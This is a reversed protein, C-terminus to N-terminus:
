LLIQSCNEFFRKGSSDRLLPRFLKSNTGQRVKASGGM